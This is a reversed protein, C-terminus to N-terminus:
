VSKIISIIEVFTLYSLDKYICQTIKEPISCINAVLNNDRWALEWFYFFLVADYGSIMQYIYNKNLDIAINQQM